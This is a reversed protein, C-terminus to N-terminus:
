RDQGLPGGLKHLPDMRLITSSEVVDGKRLCARSSCDLCSASSKGSSSEGGSRIRPSIWDILVSEMNAESM